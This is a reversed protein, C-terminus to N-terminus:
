STEAAAAVNCQVDSAGEVAVSVVMREAKLVLQQTYSLIAELHSRECCSSAIPKSNSATGSANPSEAVAALVIERDNQLDPHAHALADGNSRVATLVVEKDSRLEPAAYWLADGDEAVASLVVQRDSQLEASAFELAVGMNSVAALVVEPDRQLNPPARELEVGNKRVAALVLKRACDEQLSQFAPSQPTSRVVSGCWSPEM